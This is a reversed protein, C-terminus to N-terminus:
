FWGAHIDDGDGSESPLMVCAAGVHHMLDCWSVTVCFAVASQCAARALRAVLLCWLSVRCCRALCQSSTASRVAANVYWLVGDDHSEVQCSNSDSAETCIVPWRSTIPHIILWGTIPKMDSAASIVSLGYWGILDAHIVASGLFARWMSVVAECVRGRVAWAARLDGM